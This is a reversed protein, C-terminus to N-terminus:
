TSWGSGRARAPDPISREEPRSDTWTGHGAAVSDSKKQTNTHCGSPPTYSLGPDCYLTSGVQASSRAPWEAIAWHSKQPLLLVEASSSPHIQRTFLSIPSVLFRITYSHVNARSLSKICTSHLYFRGLFM